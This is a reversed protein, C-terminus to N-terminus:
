DPAAALRDGCHHCKVSGPENESRCTACVIRPPKKAQPVVAEVLILLRRHMATLEVMENKIRLVAFFLVLWMIAAALLAISEIM